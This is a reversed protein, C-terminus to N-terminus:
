GYAHCTLFRRASHVLSLSVCFALSVRVLSLSLSVYMDRNCHTATHQLSVLSLSMCFRICSHFVCVHLVSCCVAVCQLVRGSLLRMQEHDFTVISKLAPPEGVICQLVSCCVAVCQLVSCCMVVCRLVGECVKVCQLVSCCVALLSACTRM